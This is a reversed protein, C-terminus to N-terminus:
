KFNKRELIETGFKETGFNETGFNETGFNETGFKETGFNGNWFKRELIKELFARELNKRYKKISRNLKNYCNDCLDWQKCQKRATKTYLAIREETEVIKGCMDCEYLTKAKGTKDLKKIM